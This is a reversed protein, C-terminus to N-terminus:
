NAAKCVQHASCTQQAVKLMNEVSDCKSNFTGGQPGVTFTNGGISGQYGDACTYGAGCPTKLAFTSVAQCSPEPKFNCLSKDQGQCLGQAKANLEDYSRCDGVVREVTGNYCIVEAYKFYTDKCDGHGGVMSTFVGSKCDKDTYDPQYIVYSQKTM